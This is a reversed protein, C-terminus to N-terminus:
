YVLDADRILAFNDSLPLFQYDGRHQIYWISWGSCSLGIGSAEGVDWTDYSVTCGLHTYGLM